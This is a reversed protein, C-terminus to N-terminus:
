VRWGLKAAAATIILRSTMLNGLAGKPDIGLANCVALMIKPGFTIGAAAGAIAGFLGEDIPVNKEKAENLSNIIEDYVLSENIQENNAKQIEEITKM